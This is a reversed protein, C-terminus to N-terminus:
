LTGLSLPTTSSLYAYTRALASRDGAKAEECDKRGLDV